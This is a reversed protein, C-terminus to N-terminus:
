PGTAISFVGTIGYIIPLQDLTLGLNNTSFASGFPMLMFGGTALLTTCLFAKLYDRTAVTKLLHQFANRESKLRLHETVPKMYWAILIGVVVCVGAIMWFPAHWSFRNA